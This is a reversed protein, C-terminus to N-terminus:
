EPKFSFLKDKEERIIVGDPTDDAALKVLIKVDQIYNLIHAWTKEDVVKILHKLVEHHNKSFDSIAKERSLIVLNKIRATWCAGCFNFGEKIPIGCSCLKM